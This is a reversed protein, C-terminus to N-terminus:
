ICNNACELEERIFVQKRQTDGRAVCDSACIPYVQQALEYQKTQQFVQFRVQDLESSSPTESFIEM